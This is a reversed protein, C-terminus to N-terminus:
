DSSFIGLIQLLSVFINWINLFINLAFMAPHATTGYKEANRLSQLDMVTYISFMVLVVIAIMLQLGGLQFVFANLLSVAIVGLLIFFMPKYWGSLDKKANWGWIAMLTFIIATGAMAMTVVDGAGSSVYFNLTPYIVIGLITPIAIALPGALAQAAKRAFAAFILVGLAVLYLPMLLAPPITPGIMVTGVIAALFSFALWTMVKSFFRPERAPSLKITDFDTQTM